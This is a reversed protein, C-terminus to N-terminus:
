IWGEMWEKHTLSDNKQTMTAYCGNKNFSTVEQGQQRRGQQIHLDMEYPPWLLFWQICAMSSKSEYSHEIVLESGEENPKTQLM